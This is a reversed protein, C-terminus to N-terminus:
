ISGLAKEFRAFGEDIEEKTITLPPLFRLTNRGAKLVLVGNAFGAKIIKAVLEGNACQLGRMFGIGTTALFIDSHNKVQEQLKKDFYEISAGLFGEKYYSELIDLVELGARTSLFNGGFTSGHDGTKFVDKHKTMVAGIPVGGALGKALTVIDPEIGYLKASLFEGSRFVGSQVEDIILLLEKSHLFAALDQVEKKDFAQVGGEGQILEIMVGVTEDDIASYIDKIQSKHEFGAPYPSFAEQHFSDQGTAKITTITRGHFSHELTLVKFRKNKFKNQGYKRAIKIAGENAEAGSNGFFVAMDLGSLEVMKKALRAQPEILFLNSTHTLHSVQEYIAAAVQANGHGVSAVGIGSTFDIYDKGEEDFLTANQGSKFNVYNRAYTQLVYKKDMEELTM